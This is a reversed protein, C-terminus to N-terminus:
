DIPELEFPIGDNGSPVVTAHANAYVDRSAVGCLLKLVEVVANSDEAGRYHGTGCKAEKMGYTFEGGFRDKAYFAIKNESFFKVLHEDDAAYGETQEYNLMKAYVVDDMASVTVQKDDYEYVYVGGRVVPDQGWMQAFDSITTLVKKTDTSQAALVHNYEGKIYDDEASAVALTGRITSFMSAFDLRRMYPQANLAKLMERVAKMDVLTKGDINAAFISTMSNPIAKLFASSPAALVSDLWKLFTGNEMSTLNTELRMEGGDFNMTMHLSEIDASTLMMILPRYTDNDYYMLESRMITQFKQMDAYLAVDCPESLVKMASENARISKDEKQGMLSKLVKLAKESESANKTTAKVLVGDQVVYISHGDVLANVGERKAFSEGTNNEYLAEAKKEDSLPLILVHDFIKEPVYFYANNGVNLGMLPMDRLLVSLVNVDHEDMVELLSSPYRLQQEDNVVGAKEVLSKMDVKMVLVADGPILQEVDENSKGCSSALLMVMCMMVMWKIQKM